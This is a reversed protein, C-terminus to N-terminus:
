KENELKREKLEFFKNYCRQMCRSFHGHLIKFQKDVFEDYEKESKKM